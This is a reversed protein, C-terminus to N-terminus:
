LAASLGGAGNGSTPPAGLNSRHELRMELRELIAARAAVARRPERRQPCLQLPAAEVTKDHRAGVAVLVFIHRGAGLPEGPQGAEGARGADGDHQGIAGDQEDVAAVRHLRAIFHVRRGEGDFM